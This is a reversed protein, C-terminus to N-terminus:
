DRTISRTPPRTGMHQLRNLGSRPVISPPLRLFKLGGQYVVEAVPLCWRDVAPVSLRALAAALAAVLLSGMMDMAFHVGLYIRAWAVLLGVISVAIGWRRAASTVLLGFGLAWLFTAHDSPFSNDPAHSLWTHGLGIMFPRPEFWIVGALQNLGLALVVGAATALLQGRRDGHGWVWLAVMLAMAAFVLWQALILAIMLLDPSPHGSADIALFLERNLSTLM